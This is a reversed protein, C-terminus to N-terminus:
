IGLTTQQYTTSHGLLFNAKLNEIAYCLIWWNNQLVINEFYGQNQNKNIRIFENIIQICFNMIWSNYTQIRKCHVSILIWVIKLKMITERLNKKDEKKNTCKGVKQYLLINRRWCLVIEFCSCPLLTKVYSSLNSCPVEKLRMSYSQPHNHQLSLQRWSGSVYWM